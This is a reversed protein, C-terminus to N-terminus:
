NGVADISPSLAVYVYGIYDSLTSRRCDRHNYLMDALGELFGDLLGTALKTVDGEVVLKVDMPWESKDVDKLLDKFDDEEIVKEMLKRELATRDLPLKEGLKEGALTKFANILFQPVKEKTLRNLLIELSKSTFVAEVNFIHTHCNIKM